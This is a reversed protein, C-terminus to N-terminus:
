VVKTRKNQVTYKMNRGYGSKIKEIFCITFLFHDFNLMSQSLTRLPSRQTSRGPDKRHYLRRERHGKVLKRCRWNGSFLESKNNNNRAHRISKTCRQILQDDHDM